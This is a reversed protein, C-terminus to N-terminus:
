MASSNKDASTAEKNEVTSNQNLPDKKLQLTKEIKKRVTEYSFDDNKKGSKLNREELLRRTKPQINPKDKKLTSSQANASVAIPSAIISPAPASTANQHTVTTKKRLDQSQKQNQRFFSAVLKSAIAERNNEFSSSLRDDAKPATNVTSTGSSKRQDEPQNKAEFQALLQKVNKTGGDEDGDDMAMAPPILSAGALSILAYFTKNKM